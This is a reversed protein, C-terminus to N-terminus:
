NETSTNQHMVRGYTNNKTSLDTVEQFVLILIKVETKWSHHLQCYYIRRWIRGLSIPFRRFLSKPKISTKVVGIRSLNRKKSKLLRLSSQKGTSASNDQKTHLVSDFQLKSM